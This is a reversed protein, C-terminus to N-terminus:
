PEPGVCPNPSSKAQSVVNKIKKLFFFWISGWPRCRDAADTGAAAAPAALQGWQRAVRCKGKASRGLTVTVPSPPAQWQGVEVGLSWRPCGCCVVFPSAAWVGARSSRGRPRIRPQPKGGEPCPCCHFPKPRGEERGAGAAVKAGSTCPAPGSALHPRHLICDGSKHPQHCDWGEGRRAATAEQVFGWQFLHFKLSFAQSLGRGGLGRRPGM